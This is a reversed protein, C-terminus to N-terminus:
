DVSGSGRPAEWHVVVYERSSNGLHFMDGHRLQVYRGVPLARGNLRVGNSSQLDILYPRVSSREHGLSDRHRFQIVAHQGSVSPHAAEYDVVTADRGMLWCSRQGLDITDLVDADTADPSESSGAKGQGDKFVVLRWIDWSPPKRAELPEFYQLVVSTGDQRTLTNSAAALRGTNGYNPAEKKAKVPGSIGKQDSPVRTLAFSEAQSPLAGGRRLGTPSREGSNADDGM